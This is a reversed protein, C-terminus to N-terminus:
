REDLVILALGSEPDHAKRLHAPSETVNIELTPRVYGKYLHGARAVGRRDSLVAHVHAEPHANPGCAIDGILSAM